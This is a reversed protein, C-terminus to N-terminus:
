NNWSSTGPVAYDATGDFHHAYWGPAQDATQPGMTCAALPGLAGALSLVLAASFIFRTM